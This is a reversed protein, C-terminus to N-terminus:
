FSGPLSCTDALCTGHEIYDIHSLYNISNLAPKAKLILQINHHVNTAEANHNQRRGIIQNVTSSFKLRTKRHGIGVGKGRTVFLLDCTIGLRHFQPKLGPRINRYFFVVDLLKVAVKQFVTILVFTMSVLIFSGSVADCGKVLISLL